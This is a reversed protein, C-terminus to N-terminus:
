TGRDYHRLVVEKLGVDFCDLVNRNKFLADGFTGQIATRPFAKVFSILDEHMYLFWNRRNVRALQKWHFWEAGEYGVLRVAIYTHRGRRLEVDLIEAVHFVDEEEQETSSGVGGEGEASTATHVVDVRSGGVSPRGTGAGEEETSSVVDSLAEYHVSAMPEEGGSAVSSTSMAEGESSSASDESDAVAGGQEAEASDSGGQGGEEESDSYYTVKLRSSSDVQEVGEEESSEHIVAPQPPPLLDRVLREWGDVVFLEGGGEQIGTITDEWDIDLAVGSAEPGYILAEARQSACLLAMNLERGRNFDPHVGKWAVNSEPCLVYSRAQTQRNHLNAAAIDVMEANSRGALVQLTSMIHRYHHVLVDRGVFGGLMRWRQMGQLTTLAGSRSHRFLCLRYEEAVYPATAWMYVSVYMWLAQGIASPLTYVPSGLNKRVWDSRNKFRAVHLSVQGSVRDYQVERGLVLEMVNEKRLAGGCGVLLCLFLAGQIEWMHGDLWEVGPHLGLNWTLWEVAEAVADGLECADVRVMANWRRQKNTGAMGVQSTRWEDTQRKNKSLWGRVCATNVSMPVHSLVWKMVDKVATMVSARHSASRGGALSEFVGAHVDEFLFPWMGHEQMSCMLAPRSEVWLVLENVVRMRYTSGSDAHEGVFYQVAKRMVMRGMASAARKYRWKNINRLEERRENAAQCDEDTYRPMVFTPEGLGGTHEEKVAVVDTDEGEAHPKFTLCSHLFSLM